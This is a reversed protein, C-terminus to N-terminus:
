PPTVPRGVRIMGPAEIADTRQATRAWWVTTRGTSLGRAGEFPYRANGTAAAVDGDLLVYGEGVADDLRGHVLAREAGLALARRAVDMADAERQRPTTPRRGNGVATTAFWWWQAAAM